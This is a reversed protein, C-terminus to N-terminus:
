QKQLTQTPTEGFFKKYETTFHSPHFYGYKAIITSISKQKVNQSLLENRIANLRLNQLYQKPTVGLEKKFSYQLTRANIDFEEMLETIKYINDINDELIERARRTYNKENTHEKKPMLAVLSFLDEIINEEISLFMEKTLTLNHSEFFLFWEQLTTILQSIGQEQLVLRYEMRLTDLARGFYAYFIKHFYASEFVISFIENYSDSLYNSEENGEIIVLEYKQLKQGNVNCLGKSKIFSVQVAGDPPSSEIMIADSYNVNSFQIRPTTFIRLDAKTTGRKLYSWRTQWGQSIANIIGFDEISDLHLIQPEFLETTM